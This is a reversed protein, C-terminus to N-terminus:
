TDKIPSIKFLKLADNFKEKGSKLYFEQKTEADSPSSTETSSFITEPDILYQKLASVPTHPPSINM